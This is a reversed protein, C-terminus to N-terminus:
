DIFNTVNKKTGKVKEKKRGKVETIDITRTEDDGVSIKVRITEGEFYYSPELKESWEIFVFNDETVLQYFDTNLLESQENIRYLDIHFINSAYQNIITFTPSSVRIRRKLRKIVEAIFTTKGAGMDAEFLVIVRKKKSQKLAKAFIRAIKKTQRVSKSQYHALM